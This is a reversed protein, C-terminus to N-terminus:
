APMAVQDILRSMTEDASNIVRQYAGYARMGVMMQTMEYPLQVNATELAGPVVTTTGEEGTRPEMGDPAVYLGDGERQLRTPEDFEVVALKGVVAGNVLVNGAPDFEVIGGSVDIPDGADSLVKAGELTALQGDADTAFRGDRTYREGRDTGVTLFGPGMLGVNFPDGTVAIVGNSFDSYAGGSRVGGGPGKQMDLMAASESSKLFLTYFGENVTNQRKFGPTSANAINNAIVAQQDEVALMGSAAAYLGQIM